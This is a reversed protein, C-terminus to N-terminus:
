QTEVFEQESGFFTGGPSSRRNQYVRILFKWHVFEGTDISDSCSHHKNFAFNEPRKAVSSM